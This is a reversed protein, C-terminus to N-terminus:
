DSDSSYQQRLEEETLYRDKINNTIDAFDYVPAGKFLLDLNIEIENEENDLNTNM